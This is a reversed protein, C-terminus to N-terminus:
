KGKDPAAMQATVPSAVNGCVVDKYRNSKPDTDVTLQFKGGLECIGNMRKQEAVLAEQAEKAATQASVLAAQAQQAEALLRWLTATSPLAPATVTPAGPLKAGDAPKSTVNPQQAFAAVTLTLILLTKM